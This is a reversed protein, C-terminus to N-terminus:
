GGPGFRSAIPAITSTRVPPLASATLRRLWRRRRGGRRFAPSSGGRARSPERRPSGPASAPRGAPHSSATGRILEHVHARRHGPRRRGGSEGASVCLRAEAGCSRGAEGVDIQRAETRRRGLDRRRASPNPAGGASPPGRSHGIRGRRPDSCLADMENQGAEVRAEFLRGSRRGPRRGAIRAAVLAPSRRRPAGRSAGSGRGPGSGASGAARGDRGSPSIRASSPNARCGSRRGRSSVIGIPRDETGDNRTSM